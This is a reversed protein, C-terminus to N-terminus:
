YTIETIKKHGVAQEQGIYDNLTAPRMQEALPIKSHINLISSECSPAHIRSNSETQDKHKSPEIPMNISSSDIETVKPEASNNREGVPVVKSKSCKPSTISTKKGMLFSWHSTKEKAINTGEKLEADVKIRKIRPEEPSCGHLNNDKPSTFM